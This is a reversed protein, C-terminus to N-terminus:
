ESSKERKEGPKLLPGKQGTRGPTKDENPSPSVGGKKKPELRTKETKLTGIKESGWGKTKKSKSEAKL